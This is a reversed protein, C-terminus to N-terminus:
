RRELSSINHRMADSTFSHIHLVPPIIGQGLSGGNAYIECEPRSNFGTGPAGLGSVTQCTVTVLM